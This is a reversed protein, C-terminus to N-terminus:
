GTSEREVDAPRRVNPVDHLIPPILAATRAAVEDLLARDRPGFPDHRHSDIDIEGVLVGDLFVPVVLEARTRISCALYNGESRVDPVEVAERREAASGCVGRGFPIRIHETPAGAFPGLVLLKEDPVAFYYGVWDYHPIRERLLRCVRYLAVGEDPTGELVDAIEELIPQVGDPGDDTVM